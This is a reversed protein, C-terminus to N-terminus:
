ITKAPSPNAVGAAGASGLEFTAVKTYQAGKPSLKSEYLFFAQATMTGFDPAPMQAIRDALLKFAPSPGSSHQHPNGSAGRGARALTLHPKLDNRDREFGFHSCTEDVKAALQPLLEPAEVGIWFVRASRPNPFFGCGGFHIDFKDHQVKGLERKLDEATEPSTEGLFKLTVHFTEPKVWRADPAFGRVGEVYRAIRQRIDDPIDIGVFLRM